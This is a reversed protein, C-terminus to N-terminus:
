LYNMTLILFVLKGFSDIDIWYPRSAPSKIEGTYNGYTSKHPDSTVYQTFSENMPNFKFFLSSSSGVLWVNGNNDVTIGNPTKLDEPLPFRQFSVSDGEDTKVQSELQTQNIKFLNGPGNLVWSTYWLTDGDFKFDATVAKPDLSPLLYTDVLDDKQSFDTGNIVSSKDSDTLIPTGPPILKAAETFSIFAIQNGKFDNIVISSGHVELRQPYSNEVAPFPNKAYMKFPIYFSWVTRHKEDTFWISGDPAYDMGWIMSHQNKPWSHNRYEYFIESVPDFKVVSGTNSEVFWINGFEDTIIAQPLTCDTPIKYEKVYNNSTANGTGCFKSRKEETFYDAPTGTLTVDTVDTEDSTSLNQIALIAFILILISAIITLIISEQKM